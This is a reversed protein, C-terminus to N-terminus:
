PEVRPSDRPTSKTNSIPEERPKDHPHTSIFTSPEEAPNSLHRTPSGAIPALETAAAATNARAESRLYSTLRDQTTQYEYYYHHLQILEKIYKITDDYKRLITIDPIPTSILYDSTADKIDQKIEEMQIHVTEPYLSIYYLIFSIAARKNHLVGNFVSDPHVNIKFLSHRCHSCYPEM